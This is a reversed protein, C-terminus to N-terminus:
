QRHALWIAYVAPVLITIVMAVILGIVAIMNGIIGTILLIFGAFVMTFGGLRNTKQWNESNHLTEPLRIGVMYNPTTKPLYNGLVIFLLGIVPLIVSGINIHYNLAHMFTVIQVVNLLLPLSWILVTFVKQNDIGKNKMSRIIVYNVAIILVPLGIVAILKPAYQDPQGDIGFHIPLQQPLYQWLLGGYAIPLLSILNPLLVRSNKM